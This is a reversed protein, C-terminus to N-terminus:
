RILIGVITCVITLKFIIEGQQTRKYSIKEAEIVDTSSVIVIRVQLLFLVSIQIITQVITTVKCRILM